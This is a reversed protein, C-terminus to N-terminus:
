VTQVTGAERGRDADAAANTGPGGDLAQVLERVFCDLQDGADGDFNVAAVLGGADGVHDAAVVEGAGVQGGGGARSVPAPQFEAAESAVYLRRWEDQSTLLRHCPEHGPLRRARVAAQRGRAM